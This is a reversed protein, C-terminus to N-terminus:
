RCEHLDLYMCSGEEGYTPFIFDLVV